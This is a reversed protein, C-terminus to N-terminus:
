PYPCLPSWYTYPVRNKLLFHYTKKFVGPKDDGFGFIMSGLVRIGAKRYAKLNKEYHEVKNITKGVSELNKHSLSELGVALEICGSKRALEILERDEAASITAQGIWLIRLPILAKFLEAKKDEDWYNKQIDIFTQECKEDKFEALNQPTGARYFYMKYPVATVAFRATM